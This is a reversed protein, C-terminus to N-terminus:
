KFNTEERLFVTKLKKKKKIEKNKNVKSMKGIRNPVNRDIAESKKGLKRGWSDLNMKRM